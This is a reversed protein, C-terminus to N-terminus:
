LRAYHLLIDCIRRGPLLIANGQEMGSLIYDVTCATGGGLALCWSIRQGLAAVDKVVFAYASEREETARVQALLAPTSVM